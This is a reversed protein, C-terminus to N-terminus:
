ALEAAATGAGGGGGPWQDTRAETNAASVTSDAAPLPVAGPLPPPPSSARGADVRASARQRAASPAASAHRSRCAAAAVVGRLGRHHRASVAGRRRLERPAGCRAEM